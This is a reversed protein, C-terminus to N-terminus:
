SGQERYTKWEFLPCNGDNISRCNPYQEDTLTDNGFDNRSLFKKEGTVPDIAQMRSVATCYHDWISDGRNSYHKCKVCITNPVPPNQETM